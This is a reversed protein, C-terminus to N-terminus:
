ANVGDKFLVGAGPFGVWPAVYSVIRGRATPDDDLLLGSVVFASVGAAVLTNM